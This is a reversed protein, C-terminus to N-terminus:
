SIKNGTTYDIGINKSLEAIQTDTADPQRINSIGLDSDIQAFKDNVQPSIGLDKDIQAFKNNTDM